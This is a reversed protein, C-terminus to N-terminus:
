SIRKKVPKLILNNIQKKKNDRPDRLVMHLGYRDGNEQMIKALEDIKEINEWFSKDSQRGFTDDNFLVDTEELLPQKTM